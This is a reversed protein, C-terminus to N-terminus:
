LKYFFVDYMKISYYYGADSYDKSDFRGTVYDLKQNLLFFWRYQTEQLTNLCLTSPIMRLFIHLVCHM